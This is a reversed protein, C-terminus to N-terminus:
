SYIQELFQVGSGEKRGERGGKTGEQAGEGTGGERGGGDRRRERGWGEQAGEGMGGASGGGDRRCEGGWGEEKWLAAKGPGSNPAGLVDHSTTEQECIDQHLPCPQFEHTVSVHSLFSTSM